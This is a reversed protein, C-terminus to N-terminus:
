PAPRRCARAGSWARPHTVFYRSDGRIEAMSSGLRRSTPAHANARTFTCLIVPPTCEPSSSAIKELARHQREGQLDRHLRRQHGRAVSLRFFCHPHASGGALARPVRGDAATCHGRGVADPEIGAAAHFHRLRPKRIGIAAYPRGRQPIGRALPRTKPSRDISNELLIQQSVRYM